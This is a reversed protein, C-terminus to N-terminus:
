PEHVEKCLHKDSHPGDGDRADRRRAGPCPGSHRELRAAVALQAYVGGFPPHGGPCSRPKGGVQTHRGAPVSWAGCTGAAAVPLGCREHM